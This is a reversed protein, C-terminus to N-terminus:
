FIQEEGRKRVLEPCRQIGDDAPDLYKARALKLPVLNFPRYFHNLSVGFALGLHDRVDQEHRTHDSSFKLDLVLGDGNIFYDARDDVDNLRRGVRLGKM